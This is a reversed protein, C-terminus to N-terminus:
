FDKASQEERKSSYAVFLWKDQLDDFSMGLGNDAVVVRDENFFLHVTDAEADFSNKVVEFIAVEDDTILERGLVRKLGTSVEFHLKKTEAERAKKLLAKSGEVTAVGRPM